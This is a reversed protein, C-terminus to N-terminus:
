SAQRHAGYANAFAHFAAPRGLGNYRWLWARLLHRHCEGDVFARRGHLTHYNNLWLCQGRELTITVCRGPDNAVREFRDLAALKDASGEDALIGSRLLQSGYQAVVRGGHRALMPCKLLRAHHGPDTHSGTPLTWIWDRFYLGVGESDEGGLADFVDQASRLLTTGGVPASRLCLMALVDTPDTHLLMPGNSQYGRARESDTPKTDKVDVILNGTPDQPVLTGLTTATALMLSRLEGDSLGPDHCTVVPWGHDIASAFTVAVPPRAVVPRDSGDIGANGSSPLLLARTASIDLEIVRWNSDKEGTM